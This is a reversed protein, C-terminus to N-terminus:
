NEKSDNTPGRGPKVVAPIDSAPDVKIRQANGYRDPDVKSLLWQTGTTNGKEIAKENAVHFDELLSSVCQATAMRVRKMFYSDEELTEIDDIDVGSLLCATDFDHGLRIADLISHKRDDM